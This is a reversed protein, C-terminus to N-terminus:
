ATAGTINKQLIMNIIEKVEAAHQLIMLHGGGKIIHDAKINKIFFIRDKDGHLHFINKVPLKNKWNLIADISWNSYVRDINKRYSNVMAKEDKTKIGLNYNELPEILTFSRMPFLRNLKLKGSVRMWLPMETYAKISSIIIVQEVKIQRSIEICMIGGFSLGILIPNEHHIQETLRKAYNEISEKKKPIIWKIFHIEHATFTLNSFVKEDAGLGSICYIHKM